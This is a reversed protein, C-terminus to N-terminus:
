REGDKVNLEGKQDPSERRDGGYIKGNVLVQEAGDDNIRSVIKM